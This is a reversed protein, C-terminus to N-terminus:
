LSTGFITKLGGFVTGPIMNVEHQQMDFIQRQIPIHQQYKDILIDIWVELGYKGQQILKAPMPATIIKPVGPAYNAPPTYKRRITREVYWEVKKRITYSVEDMGNQETWNEAPIGHIVEGEPLRIIRDVIQLGKPIKRGNGKHGDQGGSKRKETDNDKEAETKKEKEGASEDEGANTIESESIEEVVIANRDEVKIDSLKLKESKLGFLMSAFKNAKGRENSM